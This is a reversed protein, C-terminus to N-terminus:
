SEPCDSVHHNPSRCRACIAVESQVALEKALEDQYWKAKLADELAAGKKGLRSQYKIANGRLFGLYQERPLWAKLVKITEYVTDGGYHAPHNVREPPADQNWCEPDACRPGGHNGDCKIM